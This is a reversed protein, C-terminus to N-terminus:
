CDGEVYFICVNYGGDYPRRDTWMIEIDKRNKFDFYLQNVAARSEPSMRNDFTFMKCGITM